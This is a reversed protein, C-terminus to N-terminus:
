VTNSYISDLSSLMKPISFKEIRMLNLALLNERFGLDQIQRMKEALEGVEGISFLSPSDKGLVETVADNNSAIIPVSRSIAELLVMGFGEYLSTLLFVDLSDLFADIDSTRGLWFVKGQIELEYSLKELNARLHGDGVIYLKSNARSASFKAFAQLMTPLDKQETLRSITGFILGSERSPRKLIESSFGYHVVVVKARPGIEGRQSLYEKVADSIAIVTGARFSVFRSLSNSVIRPKKPWFPESNHRTVILNHRFGALAALLEAQPLHAHVLENSRSLIKRLLYIQVLFNKNALHDIIEIGGARFENALEPYGKLYCVSVKRGSKVQATALILLQKEAGGMEITTIVHIVPRM